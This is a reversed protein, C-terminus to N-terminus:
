DHTRRALIGIQGPEFLATTVVQLGIHKVVASLSELDFVHHHLARYHINELSRRTFNEISGASPDLNLDHLRLIEELHSVDDERVEDSFDSIMHAVTTIPRRHDFSGMNSPVVILIAGDERVIRKWELLAKVPNALHEIVHAALLGDYEGDEVVHLSVADSIIRKGPLKPKWDGIIRRVLSPTWITIPAFDVLDLERIVPYIPLPGKVGLIWSPGGLEVVRSGTFAEVIEQFWLIRKSGIVHNVVTRILARSQGARIKQVARRATSIPRRSKM